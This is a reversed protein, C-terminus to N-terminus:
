VGAYVGTTTGRLSDPAIGARELAEWAVELLVRQQPDMALAERPSIGFFEADFDGADYLFGGHRTYSTGARDLDPDFLRELDWGRDQPFEGIADVGGAVLEWLQEPSGVGGPYRCGMGVIAVPELAKQLLRQNQQRLQEREKLSARLAGLLDENTATM